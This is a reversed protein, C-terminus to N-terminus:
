PGEPEPEPSPRNVTEGVVQKREPDGEAAIAYDDRAIAVYQDPTLLQVGAENFVGRLLPDSPERTTIVIPDIHETDFIERLAAAHLLVEALASHLREVEDRMTAVIKVEIVTIVRDPRIIVLDPQLREDPHRGFSLEPQVSYDPPLQQVIEAVLARELEARLDPDAAASAAGLSRRTRERAAHLEARESDSLRLVNALVEASDFSLNRRGTEVHTIQSASLKDGAAKIAAAMAEQTLGARNRWRRVLDSVLDEAM